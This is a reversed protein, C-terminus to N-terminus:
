REWLLPNNEVLQAMEQEEKLGGFAMFNLWHRFGPSVGTLVENRGKLLGYLQLFHIQLCNSLVIEPRNRERLEFILHVSDDGSIVQFETIVICFVPNLKHYKNGAHLQGSFSDAWGFVIREVFAPHPTTQIEVNFFRNLEDQVRVDLVIQKDVAFEKVNIPNLVTATKIPVHGSNELVANIIGRLIPENKPASLLTAIFVDSTAKIIQEQDESM